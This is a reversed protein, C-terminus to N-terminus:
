RRSKTFNGSLREVIQYGFPGLNNIADTNSLIIVTTDSDLFRFIVTNTGRIHGYREMVQHVKGRIWVGYGYDDLGPKLLKDLSAKKIIKYSFLQNIFKMLDATTSYMAGAAYWNQIFAPEDKELARTKSNLSYTDAIAPIIRAQFCMGSASMKLPELLKIKLVEEYPKGYLKEIIKGLIIYEGNNYDFFTGPQHIIKGKCFRDFLQDSSYPKGYAGLWDFKFEPDPYSEMNEMGSTHNLLQHITVKDAAEGDYDPLYKKIHAQLDLKGSEYLQLILVATFLKTISAVQYKTGPDNPVNFPFNAKGFAHNYAVKGHHQVLISGSFQHSAAYEAIFADLQRSQGYSILGHSIVIVFCIIKKM